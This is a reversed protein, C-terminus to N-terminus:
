ATEGDIPAETGPIATHVQADTGSTVESPIAIGFGSPTATSMETPSTQIVPEEDTEADSKEYSTGSRQVDRTTALPIGSTELAYEDDAGRMLSTFNTSTLYDVDKRFDAVEAKLTSVEFTKGQRSECAIVRTALDDISDRLPTLAVLIPSDIMGPISRELRTARVDASYALQGMKLIM